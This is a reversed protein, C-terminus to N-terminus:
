QRGEAEIIQVMEVSAATWGYEPSLRFHRLGAFQDIDYTVGALTITKPKTATATHDAIIGAELPKSPPLSEGLNATPSELPKSPGSKQPLNAALGSVWSGVTM